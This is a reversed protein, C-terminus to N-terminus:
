GAGKGSVQLFGRVLPIVEPAADELIYHGCDQFRHVEAKPFRRQWEELIDGDFVFDREGWCILMPHRTFLHLKSEVQEVLEYSPDRPALPIDQVFRLLAIRNQWSM